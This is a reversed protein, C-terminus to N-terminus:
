KRLTPFKTLRNLSDISFLITASVIASTMMPPSISRETAETIPRAAQTMAQVNWAPTGIGAAIRAARPAPIRAPRLLAKQIALTPRGDSATV